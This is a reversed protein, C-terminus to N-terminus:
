LNYLRKEIEKTIEKKATIEDKRLYNEISIKEKGEVFYIVTENGGDWIPQKTLLFDTNTSMQVPVIDKKASLAILSAGKHIKLHEDKRHRTGMPFILVNLGEELMESADAKMEDVEKGSALFMSSVINRFFINRKLKPAVFCTTRPILGLLILVDFYSPHTSVIVSNKINKLVEINKPEVKYVKVFEMFRVYAHWSSHIIDSLCHLRKQKDRIFLKVIPFLILGYMLSALGFIIFCLSLVISRIFRIM